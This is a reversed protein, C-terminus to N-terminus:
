LRRTALFKKIIFSSFLSIFIEPVAINIAQHDNAAVTREPACYSEALFKVDRAYAYCPRDVFVNIARVEGNTEIGCDVRGYFSDVLYSIGHICMITDKNNFHHTSICPIDCQM